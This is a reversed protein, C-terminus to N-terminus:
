QLYIPSINLILIDSNINININVFVGIRSCTQGSPTKRDRM